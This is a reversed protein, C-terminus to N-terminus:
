ESVESGCVVLGLSEQVDPTLELALVSDYGDVLLTNEGDESIRIVVCDMRENFVKDDTRIVVYSGDVYVSDISYEYREEQTAQREAELGNLWKDLRLIGYLSLGIVVCCMAILGIVSVVCVIRDDEDVILNDDDM